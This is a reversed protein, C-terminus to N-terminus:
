IKEYKENKPDAPLASGKLNPQPFVCNELDCEEADFREGAGFGRVPM